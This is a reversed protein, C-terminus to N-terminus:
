PHPPQSAYLLILRAAEPLSDARWDPHCEHELPLDGVLITRCGAARGAEVDSWRDGVMYSRSLDIALRGAAQVLMGPKPKRCGCGDAAVHLCVELADIPLRQRLWLHIRDLEVPNLEGTAVEPQNTVVVLLFGAAQFRAM